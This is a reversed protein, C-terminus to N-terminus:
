QACWSMEWPVCACMCVHVCACVCVHVCACVCWSMAPTLTPDGLLPSVNFGWPLYSKYLEDAVPAMALMTGANLVILCVQMCAYM